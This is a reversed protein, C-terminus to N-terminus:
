IISAKLIENIRIKWAEQDYHEEMMKRARIGMEKADDLRELLHITMTIFENLDKALMANYGDTLQPIGNTLSAMVVIPKSCSIADIVKQQVGSPQEIPSIFVDIAHLYEFLNPVFGTYTIIPHRPCPIEGFSTMLIEVDDFRQALTPALTSNIWHAAKNNPPFDRRGSFLLLRKNAKLGLKHRLQQKNSDVSDSLTLNPILPVVSIKSATLGEEIYKEKDAESLTITMKAYKVVIKEALLYSFTFFKSSSNGSLMIRTFGATDRVCPKGCIISICIGIFSNFVEFCYLLDFDKRHKIGSVFLRVAYLLFKLYAVFGPTGGFFPRDRKIGLLENGSLLWLRSPVHENTKLSYTDLPIYFIRVM